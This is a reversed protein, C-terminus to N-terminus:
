KSNTTNKVKVEKKESTEVAALLEMLKVQARFWELSNCETYTKAM